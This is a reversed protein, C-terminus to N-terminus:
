HEPPRPTHRRRFADVAKWEADRFEVGARYRSVGKPIEFFAWAVSANFKVMGLDDALVMRVLRQPKLPKPCLIQAGYTSLDVVTALAGDVQVETVEAIRFRPARRTGGYDLSQVALHTAAEIPPAVVEIRAATAAPEPQASSAAPASLAAAGRLSVRYTGDLSVVRIEAGALAPDAKIRDIFAAGRSTAAFLRELVIVNPQRATIAELAKLPEQYGFSLVEGGGAADSERLTDLQETAGIFITCPTSM